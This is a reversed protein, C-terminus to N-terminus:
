PGAVKEDLREPDRSGSYRNETRDAQCRCEALKSNEGSIRSLEEHDRCECGDVDRHRHENRVPEIQSVHGDCETRQAQHAPEARPIDYSDDPVSDWRRLCVRPDRNESRCGQDDSGNGLVPPKFCNEDAPFGRVEGYFEQAVLSAFSTLALFTSRADQLTKGVIPYVRIERM